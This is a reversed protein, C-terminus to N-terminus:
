VAPSTRAARAEAALLTNRLLMAVTLKGVGGPVPTIARSVKRVSEFDVDGVLKGDVRNIGVDIVIAGHRVMDATIMRPRGAAVILLDAQRTVTPLDPTRSHAITVTANAPGGEIAPRRQALLLAMPKGVIDSRGVVVAHCGAVDIQHSRLLELIGLPTCPIFRPRGQALLGVNLPHFGDVDKAPDIADLVTREDISEPLPLQVLIGDVNSDGNLQEILSLLDEESTATPLRHVHSELGARQCAAEKNRVYVRSAPDDGVLIAALRPARGIRNRLLEARRRVENETAEAIPKGYLITSGTM